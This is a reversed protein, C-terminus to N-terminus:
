YDFVIKFNDVDCCQGAGLSKLANLFDQVLVRARFGKREKLNLIILKSRIVEVTVYIEYAIIHNITKHIIKIIETFCM